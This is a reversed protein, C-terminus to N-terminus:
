LKSGLWMLLLWAGIVAVFGILWCGLLCCRDTETPPHDQQGQEYEIM